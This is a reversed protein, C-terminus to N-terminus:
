NIVFSSLVEEGKNFRDLKTITGDDNGEKTCDM